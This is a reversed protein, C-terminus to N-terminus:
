KKESEGPAFPLFDGGVGAGERLFTSPNGPLPSALYCAFAM